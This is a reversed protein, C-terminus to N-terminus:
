YEILLLSQSFDMLAEEAKKEDGQVDVSLRFLVVGDKMMRRTDKWLYWYISLHTTNGLLAKMYRVRFENGPLTINIIRRELVDWGDAIYCVEATHFESEHTGLVSIFWLFVGTKQHRYIRYHTLHPFQHSVNEGKWEGIVLPLRALETQDLFNNKANM